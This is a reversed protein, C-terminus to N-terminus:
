AGLPICLHQSYANVLQMPQRDRVTTAPIVSTKTFKWGLERLAGPIDGCENIGDAWCALAEQFMREADKLNKGETVIELAPCEAFITSQGKLRFFLVPVNVNVVKNNSVIIKM